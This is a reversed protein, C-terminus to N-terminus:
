LKGKILVYRKDNKLNELLVVGGSKILNVKEGKLGYNIEVVLKGKKDKSSFVYLITDKNLSDWLVAEYDSIISPIKKIEELGLAKGLERKKDRYLHIIKVDNIIVVPTEPKIGRSHLSDLVEADMWGATIAFGRAKGRAIIGDVWSPFMEQHIKARAMEGIFASRINEPMQLAKEYTRVDLQWAAGPNSNWGIGTGAKEGTIPDKYVSTTTTVGTKKSVLREETTINGESKEVPLNKEMLDEHDYARINCRCGWDIPPTFMDWFPDDYRFVKGHLRAHSPRTAADMVAIYQWYPRDDVNEMLAKYTGAMYATQLNTQYITRLRRPSGLQIESGDEGMVKGWWGKAKLKPTLEEWFQRLTIGEDLAKQVTDRIDQLVDLRMAKAVTFAKAHSENLMEHWDWTFAYGKSAFYEIAKEPKLGIAFMLDVEEPM